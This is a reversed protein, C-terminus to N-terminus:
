KKNSIMESLSCKFKKLENKIESPIINSIIEPIKKLVNNYINFSIINEYLRALKGKINEKIEDRTSSEIKGNIKEILKLASEYYNEILENIINDEIKFDLKKIEEDFNSNLADKWFLNNIDYIIKESLNEKNLDSAITFLKKYKKLYKEITNKVYFNFKLNDIFSLSFGLGVKIRKKNDDAIERFFINKIIPSINPFNLQIKNRFYDTENLFFIIKNEYLRQCRNINNIFNKTEKENLDNAKLRFIGKLKNITKSKEITNFYKNDNKQRYIYAGIKINKYIEDYLSRNNNKIKKFIKKIAKSLKDFIPKLIDSRIVTLDSLRKEFNKILIKLKIYDQKIDSINSINVKNFIDKFAEEYNINTLDGIFILAHKIKNKRLNEFLIYNNYINDILSEENTEDSFIKNKVLQKIKNIIENQGLMSKDFLDKVFFDIITKLKLYNGDTIIFLIKESKSECKYEDCIKIYEANEAFASDKLKNMISIIKTYGLIQSLKEKGQKIINKAIEGIVTIEQEDQLNIIINNSKNDNIELNSLLFYKEFKQSLDILEKYKLSFVIDLENGEQINKNLSKGIPEDINLKHRFYNQFYFDIINSYKIKQPNEFIIERKNTLLFMIKLMKRCYDEYAKGDMEELEELNLNSKIIKLKYESLANKKREPLEIGLTSLGEIQSYSFSYSDNKEVSFSLSQETNTARLSDYTVWDNNTQNESQNKPTNKNPPSLKRKEKKEETIQFESKLKLKKDYSASRKKIIKNNDDNEEKMEEDYSNEKQNSKSQQKLDKSKEPINREDINKITTTDKDKEMKFFYDEMMFFKVFYIKFKQYIYHPDNKINNLTMPTLIDSINFNKLDDIPLNEDLINETDEFLKNLTECVIKNEKNEREERGDM